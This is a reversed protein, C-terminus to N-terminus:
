VSKHFQFDWPSVLEWIEALAGAAVVKKEEKSIVNQPGIILTYDDITLDLNLCDNDFDTKTINYFDFTYNDEFLECTETHIKELSFMSTLIKHLDTFSYGGMFAGSFRITGSNTIVSYPMNNKTMYIIGGGNINCEPCVSIHPKKVDYDLNNISKITKLIINIIKISAIQNAVLSEIFYHRVPDIKAMRQDFVEKFIDNM